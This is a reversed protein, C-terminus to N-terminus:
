RQGVVRSSHDARGRRDSPLQGPADALPQAVMNVQALHYSGHRDIVVGRHDVVDIRQQAGERGVISREEFEPARQRGLARQALSPPRIEAVAMQAQPAVPQLQDSVVQAVLPDDPPLVPPQDLEIPRHLVGAISGNKLM